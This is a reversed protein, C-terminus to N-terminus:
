RPRGYVFAGPASVDSRVFMAAKVAEGPRSIQEPESPEPSFRRPRGLRQGLTGEILGGIVRAEEQRGLDDRDRAVDSELWAMQRPACVRHEIQCTM